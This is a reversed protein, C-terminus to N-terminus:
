KSDGLIKQLAELVEQDENNEPLKCVEIRKLLRLQMNQWVGISSEIHRWQEADEKWEEIQEVMKKYKKEVGNVQDPYWGLADIIETLKM